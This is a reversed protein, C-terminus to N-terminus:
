AKVVCEEDQNRSTKFDTSQELLSFVAGNPRGSGSSSVARELASSKQPLDKGEM